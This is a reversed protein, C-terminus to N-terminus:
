VEVFKKRFGTPTMGTYKKFVNSFYYENEFGCRPAIDKIAMQTQTLFEKARELRIKSLYESPTIGTSQKFRRIFHVYSIGLEEATDTLTTKEHLYQQFIKQSKEVLEDTDRHQAEDLKSELFYQTIIDNFLSKRWSFDNYYKGEDLQQLFELTSNIREKNKFVIKAASGFIKNTNFRFLYMTVPETVERHFNQGPSFLAAEGEKINCTHGGTELRFSGSKVLALMHEKESGNECEFKERYVKTWVVLEM